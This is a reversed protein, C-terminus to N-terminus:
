AEKQTAYWKPLWDPFKINKKISPGAEIYAEYLMKLLINRENMKKEFKERTKTVESELKSKELFIKNMEQQKRQRYNKAAQANQSRKKEDGSLGDDSLKRKRGRKATKKMPIMKSATSSRRSVSPKSMEDDMVEQKVIVPSSTAVIVEQSRYDPNEVIDLGENYQSSLALALSDAPPNSVFTLQPLLDEPPEILVDEEEEMMEALDDLIQPDCEPFYIDLMEEASTKGFDHPTVPSPSTVPAAPSVPYSSNVYSEPSAPYSHLSSPSYALSSVLHMDVADLCSEQSSASSEESYKWDLNINDEAVSLLSSCAEINLGNESRQSCSKPQSSFCFPIVNGEEQNLQYELMETSLEINMNVSTQSSSEKSTTEKSIRPNKKKSVSKTESASPKQQQQQIKTSSRTTM